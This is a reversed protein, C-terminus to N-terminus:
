EVTLSGTAFFHKYLKKLALFNIKKLLRKSVPAAGFQVSDLRLATPTGHLRAFLAALTYESQSYGNIILLDYKEQWIHKLLWRIRGRQPMSAYSYGSLLDIGWSVSTSLEPDFINEFCDPNTYVVHIENAEDQAAYRFFPGEFQTPHGILLGIKM